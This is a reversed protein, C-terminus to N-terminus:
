NLFLSVKSQEKVLLDPLLDMKIVKIYKLKWKTKMNELFIYFDLEELIKLFKRPYSKPTPKGGPLCSFEDPIIHYTFIHIFIHIFIYKYM